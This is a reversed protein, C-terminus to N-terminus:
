ASLLVREPLPGIPEIAKVTSGTGPEYELEIKIGDGITRSRLRRCLLDALAPDEVTCVIQHGLQRISSLVEVLHLARYDDVHQVPDDLVLTRLNCWPRSLYVALLFALGLARRQGSSFTFRPNIGNGVAFSLFRKVDGRMRYKVESYDVHPRLRLFLESLLPSLAALCDDVAEWSVRRTTDEAAKANQAARSLSDMQKAINEADNQALSLQTELDAIREFAASGELELLGSELERERAQAARLTSEIGESTLDVKLTAAREQLNQMAAKLTELDSLSRSYQLSQAQSEDSRRTYEATRSAEEATLETLTKSHSDIEVQIQKLHASFESM